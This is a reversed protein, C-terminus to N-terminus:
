YGARVFWGVDKVPVLGGGRGIKGWGLPKMGPGVVLLLPPSVSECAVSFSERGVVMGRVFVREGEERVIALGCSIRDALGLGVILFALALSPEFVQERCVGVRTGVSIPEEGLSRLISALEVVREDACFVEEVGERSSCYVCPCLAELVKEDELGLTKLFGRFCGVVRESCLSSTRVSQPPQM